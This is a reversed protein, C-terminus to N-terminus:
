AAAAFPYPTKEVLPLAPTVSGIFPLQKLSYPFSVKSAFFSWSVYKPPFILM